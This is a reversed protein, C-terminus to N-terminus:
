LETYVVNAIDFGIMDVKFGIATPLVETFTTTLTNDTLYQLVGGMWRLRYVSTHGTSDGISTYGYIGNAGTIYLQHIQAVGIYQFKMILANDSANFLTLFNDINPLSEPHYPSIILQWSLEFDILPDLLISLFATGRSSPTNLLLNGESSVDFNVVTNWSNIDTLYITGTTINIYNVFTKTIGNNLTLNYYGVTASSTFHVIMLKSNVFETYSIAGGTMTVVMDYTFFNGVMNWNYQVDPSFSAINNVEVFPSSFITINYLGIDGNANVSFIKNTLLEGDSRTIPFAGFTLEGGMEDGKVVWTDTDIKILKMIRGIKSVLNSSSVITLGTTELSIKGSGSQLYETEYGIPLPDVTNTPITLTIASASNFVILKDDKDTLVIQYATGIQANITRLKEKKFALSAITANSNPKDVDATNDVSGLGVQAKTVNHPNTTVNAIHALVTAGNTSVWTVVNDYGSKLATTFIETISNIKALLADTFANTDANSEYKSKISAATEGGVAGSQAVWIADNVDLIYRQVDTGIGSDVDGYDGAIMNAAPYATQLAALTLHTGKFHSSELGALKAKESTTYNEDSLVKSGSIAVKTDLQANITSIASNTDVPLNAVKAKESTTYDETSLGKGTVKDVKTALGNVGNVADDIAGLDIDRSLGLHGLKTKEAPLMLGANTVDAAPLITDNGTDSEVTIGTPSPTNSLNTVGSASSTKLVLGTDTLDDNHWIYEVIKNAEIVGVTKGPRIASPVGAKAAALSVWAEDGGGYYWDSNGKTTSKNKGSIELDFNAM